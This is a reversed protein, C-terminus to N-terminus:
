KLLETWVSGQADPLSIGLMAAMTPACDILLGNERYGGKRVHPGACIFVPQPGKAPMYGHTARGHRYDMTDWTRM